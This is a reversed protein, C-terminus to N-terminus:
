NRSSHAMQQFILLRCNEGNRRKYRRYAVIKGNHDMTEILDRGNDRQIMVMFDVTNDQPPKWKLQSGWTGRGIPLPESNPTFILGDTNYSALKAEELVATAADRFLSLGQATRFTKMGIQLNQSAPVGRVAPVSASGLKGVMQAMTAQRTSGAAASGLLAGAVMFPLDAVRTDGDPGALIDFAYYHSVIAGKKDRRIWEGDLVLGGLTPDVQKSTGYVRGGADVLFVRGNKSVFLLCRLGDAKDTVNYGGPM